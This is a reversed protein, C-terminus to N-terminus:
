RTPITTRSLDYSFAVKYHLSTGLMTTTHQLHFTNSPTRLFHALLIWTETALYLYTGFNEPQDPAQVDAVGPFFNCTM